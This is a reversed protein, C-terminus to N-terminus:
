HDMKDMITFELERAYMSKRAPSDSRIQFFSVIDRKQLKKFAEKIEDNFLNGTVEKSFIWQDDRKIGVNYSTVDCSGEAHVLYCDLKIQALLFDKTVYSTKKGGATAIPPYNREKVDVTFESIKVPTKDNNDSITITATGTKAPSFVYDCGYKEIKGNDTTLLTSNCSLGKVVLRISHDVGKYAIDPKIYIEVSYKSEQAATFLCTFILIFYICLKKM